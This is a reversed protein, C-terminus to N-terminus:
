GSTQECQRIVSMDLIQNALDVEGVARDLRRGCAREVIVVVIVLLALRISVTPKHVDSRIQRLSTAQSATRRAQM